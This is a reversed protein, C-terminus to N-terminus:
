MDYKIQDVTLIRSSLRKRINEHFRGKVKELHNILEVRDEDKKVILYKIDDPKFRLPIHAAIKNFRKKAGPIEIEDKSLFPRINYKSFDPVFRWERENAFRYNDDKLKGHRYLEGDYNKIYRYMNMLLNYNNKLNTLDDINVDDQNEISRTLKDLGDIGNIIDYLLRSHRNIYM